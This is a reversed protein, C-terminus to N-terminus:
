LYEGDEFDDSESLETHGCSQCVWGGVLGVDPEDEELVMQAGCKPCEHMISAGGRDRDGRRHSAEWTGRKGKWSSRMEGNSKLVYFGVAVAVMHEFSEDSIAICNQAECGGAHFTIRAVTEALGIPGKKSRHASVRINHPRGPLGYYRTETISSQYRFEFGAALLMAAARECADFVNVRKKGNNKM